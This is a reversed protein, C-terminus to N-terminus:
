VLYKVRIKKFERTSFIVVYDTIGVLRSIDNVRRRCAEKCHCHLMSFLNYQWLPNTQREYCHSVEPMSALKQGVVDVADIPAAWCAMANAEYGAKRHNIFAGFRRIIGQQWLLKCRAVLEEPTIGLAEAKAAFPTPTLPLDEQLNNIICRDIPELEAMGPLASSAMRANGTREQDEGDGMKFYAGIKFIQVAPLVFVADVDINGSLKELESQFDVGSRVSLTFWINFHHDREYGHSVGPHEGIVSEVAQLQSEKARMAVLTTQYGLRRADLVPSIQRVIGEDKLRGIRRIVESEDRGMRFGLDAYPRESIPFAVQVLDVLKRDISDLHM